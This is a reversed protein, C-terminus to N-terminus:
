QCFLRPTCNLARWRRRVDHARLPLGANRSPTSGVKHREDANGAARPSCLKFPYCSHALRRGPNNRVHSGTPIRAVRTRRIPRNKLYVHNPRHQGGPNSHRRRWHAYHKARRTAGRRRRKLNHPRKRHAVRACRRGPAIRRRPANKAIRTYLCM